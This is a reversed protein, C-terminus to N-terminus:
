GDSTSIDALLPQHLLCACGAGMKWEGTSAPFFDYKPLGVSCFFVLGCATWPCGTNASVKCLLAGINGM